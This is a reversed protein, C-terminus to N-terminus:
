GSAELYDEFLLDIFLKGHRETKQWSVPIGNTGAPRMLKM